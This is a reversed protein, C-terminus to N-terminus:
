QTLGTGSAQIMMGIKGINESTFPHNDPIISRRKGGSSANMYQVLASRTIDPPLDLLFHVVHCTFIDKDIGTMVRAALTALTASKGKTVLDKVAIQLTANDHYGELVDKSSIEDNKQAKQAAEFLESGVEVGLLARLLGIGYDKMRKSEQLSLILDSAREWVAPMLTTYQSVQHWILAPHEAVYDLVANAMGKKRGYEVFSSADPVVYICMFRRMFAGDLEEVVYNPDDSPNISAIIRVGDPIKKGDIARNGLLEFVPQLTDPAARNVEELDIIGGDKWTFVTALESMMVHQATQQIGDQTLYAAKKLLDEQSREPFAAALIQMQAQIESYTSIVPYGRFSEPQRGAMRLDLYPLQAEAALQITIDTKGIGSPGILLVPVEPNNNWLYRIMSKAQAITHEPYAKLEKAKKKENSM